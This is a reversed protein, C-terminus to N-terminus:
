KIKIVRNKKRPLAKPADKAAYGLTCHCIGIYKDADLGWNKLLDKGEATDFEERACHIWCSGIGLAHAALMINGAILSGDEIAQGSTKEALIIIITPAAYFHDGNFGDFLKNNLERLKTIDDKNQLAVLKTAQRNMSSAAYIGAKLITDLEDDTIQKSLYARISRRTLINDIIQNM